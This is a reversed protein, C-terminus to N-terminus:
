HILSECLSPEPSEATTNVVSVLHSGGASPLSTDHTVIPEGGLLTGSLADDGNMTVGLQHKAPDTTVVV